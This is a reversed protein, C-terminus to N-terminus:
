NVIAKFAGFYLSGNNNLLKLFHTEAKSIATNQERQSLDNPCGTRSEQPQDNQSRKEDIARYTEAEWLM